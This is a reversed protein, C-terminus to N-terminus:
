VLRGETIHDLTACEEALRLPNALPLLQVGLGIKIRKTQTAIASGMVLPASIPTHPRFHFEALWFCDIGLDDAVRALGQWEVFADHETLGDRLNFPAFIGFEM